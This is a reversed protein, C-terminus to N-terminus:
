RDEVWAVVADIFELVTELDTRFGFGTAACRADGWSTIAVLIEEGTAPDTWFM